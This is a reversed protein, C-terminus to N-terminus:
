ISRAKVVPLTTNVSRDNSIMPIIVNIQRVQNSEQGWDIHQDWKIHISFMKHFLDRGARSRHYQKNTPQKRIGLAIIWSRTAVNLTFPQYHVHSLSRISRLFGSTYSAMAPLGEDSFFLAIEPHTYAVPVQPSHLDSASKCETLVVIGKFNFTNDQRSKISDQIVPDHGQHVKGTCNNKCIFSTVSLVLIVIKFGIKHM